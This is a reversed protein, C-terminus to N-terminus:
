KSTQRRGDARSVTQQPRNRSSSSNSHSHSLSRGASLVSAARAPAPVVAAITGSKRILRQVAGSHTYTRQLARMRPTHVLWGSPLPAARQASRSHRKQQPLCGSEAVRVWLPAPRLPGIVSACPRGCVPPCAAVCQRQKPLDRQKALWRFRSRLLCARAPPGANLAFEFMWGHLQTSCATTPAFSHRSLAPQRAGAFADGGHCTNPCSHTSRGTSGM